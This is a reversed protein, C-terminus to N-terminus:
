RKFKRPPSLKMGFFDALKDVTALNLGRVGRMFRNLSPVSIDAAKAVAYMSLGSRKVAAQLQESIM